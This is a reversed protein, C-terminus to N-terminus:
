YVVITTGVPAYDALWRIDKQKLRVCGHSAPRGVTGDYETGDYNMLVSHLAYNGSFVMVPGVYYTNYDWSNQYYLYSFVGNITPTKNTGSACPFVKEICWVGDKKMFVNVKQCELNVWILYDTKSTYGMSRVFMDKEANTHDEAKTYNKTSISLDSLSVWGVTGDSLLIKNSYDTKSAIVQCNVGSGVKGIRNTLMVDSYLTAQRRTTAEVCVPKVINLIHEKNKLRQAEEEARRAEEEAARRAEEEAQIEEPTKVRTLTASQVAKALLTEGSYLEFSIEIHGKEAQEVSIPLSLETSRGPYLFFGKHEYGPIPTGDASWVSRCVTPEGSYDIAVTASLTMGNTIGESLPALDLTIDGIEPEIMPLAERRSVASKQYSKVQYTQAAFAPLSSCTLIAVLFLAVPVKLTNKHKM